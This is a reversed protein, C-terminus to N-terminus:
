LFCFLEEFMHVEPQLYMSEDLVRYVHQTWQLRPLLLKIRHHAEPTAMTVLLCLFLTPPDSAEGM